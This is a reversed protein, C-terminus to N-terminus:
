LRRASGGQLFNGGPQQFRAPTTGYARRFARTFHSQDFFGVAHAVETMSIDTRQHMLTMATELRLRMLWAHPTMGVASKFQRLLRFRDLGVLAGLDELTIRDALHAEMFDRVRQLQRHTLRGAIVQPAPHRIRAFLAEFLELVQTEGQLPGAGAQAM